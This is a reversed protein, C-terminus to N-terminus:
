MSKGSFKDYQYPVVEWMILLTQVDGCDYTREDGLKAGAGVLWRAIQIYTSQPKIQQKQKILEETIDVGLYKLLSSVHMLATCKNKDKVHVDAGAAILIRVFESNLPVYEWLELLTCQPVLCQMLATRGQRSKANVLAGKQILRLVLDTESSNVAAAIMLATLGDRDQCNLGKGTNILLKAVKFSRKKLALMLATSGEVNQLEPCAGAELLLEVLQPLESAIMLATLGNRDQSNLGVGTNILLKAADFSRKQLALMLATSREVNQLNPCAGAELLLKVFQPQESAMMLATNGKKDQLNISAVSGNQILVSAASLNKRKLALMLASEGKKNQNLFAAGAKILAEVLQAGSSKDYQTALMLIDTGKKDKGVIGRGVEILTRATVLQKLSKSKIAHSLTAHFTEMDIVELSSLFAVVEVHGFSAAGLLADKVADQLVKENSPGNLRKLLLQVMQLNGIRAAIDFAEFCVQESAGLSVLDAVASAQGQNVLLIMGFADGWAKFLVGTQFSVIKRLLKGVVSFSAPPIKKRKSDM